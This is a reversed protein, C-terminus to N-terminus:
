RGRPRRHAVIGRTVVEALVDGMMESYSLGLENDLVLPLLLSPIKVANCASHFVIVESVTTLM